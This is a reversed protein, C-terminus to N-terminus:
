LFCLSNILIGQGQAFSQGELWSFLIPPQWTPTQSTPQNQCNKRNRALNLSSGLGKNHALNACTQLTLSFICFTEKRAGWCLPQETVSSGPSPGALYQTVEVGMPTSPFKAGKALSVMYRGPNPGMLTSQKSAPIHSGVETATLLFLRTHPHQM